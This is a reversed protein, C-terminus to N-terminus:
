YHSEALTRRVPRRTRASRAEGDVVDYPLDADAASLQSELHEITRPGIIASTVARNSPGGLGPWAMM